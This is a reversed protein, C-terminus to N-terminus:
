RAPLRALVAIAAALAEIERGAAAFAGARRAYGRAGKPPRVALDHVDEIVEAIAVSLAACATKANEADHM